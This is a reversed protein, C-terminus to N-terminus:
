FTYADRRETGKSPKYQRCDEVVYGPRCDSRAIWKRRFLAVAHSLTQNHLLEPLQRRLTARVESLTKQRPPHIRTVEFVYYGLFIKVPGVLTSPRARFIAKALIPESFEKPSLGLLLGEKTGVPQLVRVGKVVSAFSKGSRLESLAKRAAADSATRVIRLDRELPVAFSQKHREYYSALRADTVKPVEREVREYIRDSLQGVKLNFKIDEVTQGTQKLVQRLIPGGGGTSKEFEHELEVPSLTIGEEAAEGLLWQSHILGNLAPVMLKQYREKCGGKLQALAQGSRLAAICSTVSAPEPVEQKSAGGIEMWHLLTGRTIPKGAVSAVPERLGPSNAQIDAAQSATHGSSAATAGSSSRGAGHPGGGGCAALGLCSFALVAIYTVCRRSM